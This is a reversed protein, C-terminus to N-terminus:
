KNINWYLTFYHQAVFVCKMTSKEAMLLIIEDQELVITMNEPGVKTLWDKYKIKMFLLKEQLM